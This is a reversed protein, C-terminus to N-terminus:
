SNRLIKGKVGGKGCTYIMNYISIFDWFDDLLLVSLKMSNLASYIWQRISIKTIKKGKKIWETLEKGLIYQNWDGM